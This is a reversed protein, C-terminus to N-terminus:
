LNGVVFVRLSFQGWSDVAALTAQSSRRAATPLGPRVLSQMRPLKQWPRCCILALRSRHKGIPNRM